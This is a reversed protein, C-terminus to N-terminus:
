TGFFLVQCFSDTKDLAASSHPNNWSLIKINTEAKVYSIVSIYPSLLLKLFKFSSLGRAGRPVSASETQIGVCVSVNEMAEKIEVLFWTFVWLGAAAAPNDKSYATGYRIPSALLSPIVPAELYFERNRDRPNTGQM